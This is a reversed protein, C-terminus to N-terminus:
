IMTTCVKCDVVCGARNMSLRLFLVMRGPKRLFKERILSARGVAEM